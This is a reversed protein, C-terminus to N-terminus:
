QKRVKDMMYRAYEQEAMADRLQREIALQKLREFEEAIANAVGCVIFM